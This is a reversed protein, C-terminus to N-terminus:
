TRRKKQTAYGVNVQPRRGGLEHRVHKRAALAQGESWAMVIADGDDPSRGLRKKVEVKAEIKIGRAGIEYKPATLDALIGQGPPLALPSGGDQGPDLAERFRWWAEARKNFFQLNSGAARQTSPKSGDFQHVTAGNEKMHQAPGVGYGGGIDIVLGAGNRLHTVIFGVMDNSHPTEQGKKRELPAYWPGFRAALVSMDSGGQAVDAGMATMLLGRGGDPKWREQAEALWSTPIVQWEDDKLGVTFDGDRMAERMGSPLAGLVAGYNTEELFPNDELTAPIFTRSRPKVMRKGDFVEGPGDVETDVGDITTFWRLEGPKAPDPHHRDLWPGWYKIVWLGEATIPPNGVAVVRCRQEKDVSRNWGIIFRYQSETFSTIEDFAKLDHPIGQYGLKDDEYQVGGFQIVREEIKWESAQSNYGDTSGVIETMRRVLGRVEKNIRRLILSYRHENLALGISLDTKGGGGQGGYFLEDAKCRYALSQPGPLPTWRRTLAPVAKTVIGARDTSGLGGLM